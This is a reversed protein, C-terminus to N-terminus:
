SRFDKLAGAKFQFRFVTVLFYIHTHKNIFTLYCTTYSNVLYRVAAPVLAPSHSFTVVTLCTTLTSHTSDFMSIDFFFLLFSPLTVVFLLNCKHVRPRLSSFTYLHIAVPHHTSTPASFFIPLLAGARLRVPVRLQQVAPHQTESHGLLPGPCAWFPAPGAQCVESPRSCGGHCRSPPEDASRNWRLLLSFCNCVSFM